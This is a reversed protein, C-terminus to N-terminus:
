ILARCLKLKLPSYHPLFLFSKHSIYRCVNTWRFCICILTLIPKLSIIRTNILAKMVLEINTDCKRQYICIYVDSLMYNQNQNQLNKHSEHSSDNQKNRNPISLLTATWIQNAHKLPPPSSQHHKKSM